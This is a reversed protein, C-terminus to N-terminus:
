EGLLMKREGAADIATAKDGKIHLVAGKSFDVAPSMGVDLRFLKGDFRQIIKGPKEFAGPDHGFAIHQVGLAKLSADLTNEKWWKQGELISDKGVLFKDDWKQADVAKKYAAALDAVSAAGTNGGHAFFWGNIKAALPRTVLWQGYTGEGKAVDKSELGKDKLEKVLDRKAKKNGPKALFEAEHNGLTVIVRGGATAAQAELAILLDIAALSQDGKDVVDGAVVLVSKGGAWAGEKNTLGATALLAALRDRGGHVDSLAYVDEKTTLEVIAPHSEWDRARAQLACLLVAVAFSRNLM